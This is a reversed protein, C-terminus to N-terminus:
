SHWATSVLNMLDANNKVTDIGTFEIANNQAYMIMNQIIQNVDTNSIYSGDSLEIKEVSNDMITVRDQGLTEGYDIIIDDGDKYIAIKEKDVSADFILSDKKGESDNIIDIGDSLKFIYTDDGSEGYLTDNGSNGAIIDNNEGGYITDNGAGGDIIDNGAYGYLVNNGENGIITNGYSNGKGTLNATGSLVLNEINTPLTYNLTTNITDSGENENEVVKDNINDIFYTDDGKGGIMVDADEGGDLIDNGSYGYMLDNGAGGFLKDMQNSGNLTNNNADGVLRDYYSNIEIEDIKDYSSISNNRIVANYIIQKILYGDDDLIYEYKVAEVLKGYNEHEVLTLRGESDYTYTKKEILSTTGVSSNDEYTYKYTSEDTIQGNSNYSYRTQTNIRTKMENYSYYNSGVHYSKPEGYSIYHTIKDLQMNENYTYTEKSRTYMSWDYELGSLTERPKNYGVKEEISMIYGKDSYEYITEGTKRTNYVNYTYIQSGLKEQIVEAYGGYTVVKTLYGDTNYTYQIDEDTRMSWSYTIGSVSTVKTVKNYGVETLKRTINGNADYTYAIEKANRTAWETTNGSTKSYGEKTLENLIQDNENYTYTTDEKTRMSWQTTNGVSKNYGEQTLKRSINGNADYTYKIKEQANSSTSKFTEQESIRNLSDYTYEIVNRIVSTAKNYITIKSNLGKSNYTYKETSDLVTGNYNKVETLRNSTNYTYEKQTDITYADSYTVEKEILGNANYTNLRTLVGSEDYYKESSIIAQDSYFVESKLGGEDYYERDITSAKSNVDLYSVDSYLNSKGDSAFITYLDAGDFYTGDAFEFRDIRSGFALNSNKITIKDNTNAISIILDYGDRTFNLDNRSIGEGFVIKDIAVSDPSDEEIIDQGDGLNFIYTDAGIGGQLTDNGKGGIFTNDQDNGSIINNLSNGTGTIGEEASALVLNEVNNTLAYDVASIVTDTGENANETISTTANEIIYTDDGAGGILTDNGGNSYIIDNGAEGRLVNDGSNGEIYNDLDNGTGDIDDEGVLVLNEVNAINLTYTISSQVTDNGADVAEIIRDNKTEERIIYTDDGKGGYLTNKGAFGDLINNGASGWIVNNLENGTGNIDNTGLALTLQEVNDPLVYSVNSAIKDTGENEEEIVIDGVHDVYYTDNGPGGKMIDKGLGGVIKDDGEFTEIYDNGALGDIEDDNLSGYITDDYGTATISSVMSDVAMERYGSDDLFWFYEIKNANEAFWNKITLSDTYDKITIVLDLDNRSYKIDEYPNVDFNIYLDDIGDQDWIVDNGDEPNFHYATNGKYNVIVDDGKGATITDNGASSIIFNDGDDSPAITDNGSTDMMLNLIQNANIIFGDEFMFNEVRKETTTYWDKITLKNDTGKLEFVLDNGSRSINVDQVKVNEGFVVTDNGADVLQDQYVWRYKWTKFLWWGSQYWEQRAIKVWREDLVTDKGSGDYIYTDDGYGGQLDDDGEGGDLTDNGDGGILTDNGLGGSLYDDGAGGNLIDDGDMGYIIDANDTGTITDNGSTGIVYMPTNADVIAVEGSDLFKFGSNFYSILSAGYGEETIAYALKNVDLTGAIGLIKTIIYSALFVDQNTLNQVLKEYTNDNYIITDNLFDYNIEFSNGIKTQAIFNVFIKDKILAYVGEIYKKDELLINNLDTNLFKSVVHTIRSKVYGNMENADISIAGTWLYLLQDISDYVIKANDEISLDQILQLLELNSSAELQLDKIQGYGRIWPLDLVNESLIYEGKYATYVKNYAFLVDGIIKVQGDTTTYTSIEAINNFNDDKNVTHYGLNISEIGAEALSKLEGVDTLGDENIDQWLKLNAYQEDNNNIIGDNNSDYIKLDNFGKTDISGFLESQNDILGNNNKDIALLADDGSVWGVKETFNDNNMDFWVNNKSIDLTEIGDGDMDLVLPNVGAGGYITASVSLSAGVAGQTSTTAALASLGAGLSVFAGLAGVIINVITSLVGMLGGSSPPGSYQYFIKPATPTSGNISPPLAGGHSPIFFNKDAPILNDINNNGKFTEEITKIVNNFDQNKIVKELNFLINLPNVPNLKILGLNVNSGLKDIIKRISEGFKTINITKQNPLNTFNSDMTVNKLNYDDFATPLHTKTFVDKFLNKLEIETPNTGYSNLYDSLLNGQDLYINQGIHEGANGIFDQDSIFNIIRDNFESSDLIPEFGHEIRFENVWSAVGYSNFTIATANDVVTAAAEAISGGLSNGTFLINKGQILTQIDDSYFVNNFFDQLQAPVDNRLMALDNYIDAFDSLETGKFVFM